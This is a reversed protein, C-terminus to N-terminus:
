SELLALISNFFTLGLPLLTVVLLRFVVLKEKKSLQLFNLDSDFMMHLKNKLHQSQGLFFNV